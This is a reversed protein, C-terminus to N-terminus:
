KEVKEPKQAGHKHDATVYLKLRTIQQAGLKNKPLMREVAKRLVDTPKKDLMEQLTRVKLGVPYGSHRYYKKDKLKKWNKFRENHESDIRKM